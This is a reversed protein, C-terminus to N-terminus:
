LLNSTSPVPSFRQIITTTFLIQWLSSSADFTLLRGLTKPSCDGNRVQYRNLLRFREDTEEHSGGWTLPAVEVKGGRAEVVKSNLDANHALNSTIAPLDTLVVSTRWICAAALGLLGTGSGLELVEEPTSIAGPIFLHALPGAAFEHLLQALAYSSGWTKLGLSDGTLPPERIALSFADFDGNEFPWRRTIEGMAIAM